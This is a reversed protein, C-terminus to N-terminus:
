HSEFAGRLTLVRRPLPSKRLPPSISSPAPKALVFIADGLRIEDGIEVLTPGSVRQGNVYTGNTSGLDSVEYHDKTYVLAAHRHSVSPRRIVFPNNEDSGMTVRPNLVRFERSEGARGNLLLVRVEPFRQRRGKWRGM